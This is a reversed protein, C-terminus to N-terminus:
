FRYEAFIGAQWEDPEVIGSLGFSWRDSHRWGVDLGAYPKKEGNHIIGAKM